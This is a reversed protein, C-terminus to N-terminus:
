ALSVTRSCNLPPSFELFYLIGNFLECIKLFNTAVKGNEIYRAYIVMENLAAVDTIEHIMLSFYASSLVGQLQEKEIQVAMVQLFEGIIRQSKYKAIDGRYLHKFYDCGMFQAADILSGHKITHPIESKVLWYLCQM